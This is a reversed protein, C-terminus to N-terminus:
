VAVVAQDRLKFKQIKGTSTRPIETFVVSTPCKFRALHQRCWTIIEDQSASMGPRLEVYAVPTEGWKDSPHAIVATVLVAPHSYLINEVEISSINEGGSIIIDKSRDKLQIYGDPHCVGLDGSHFWGGEFAEATAETNKLYGKMVINGRLMVEGMTVGDSPVPQMTEPDLVALQDQPLYRVGQRAKKAAKEAPPLADWEEHWQNVVCPGYTETLGYIHNVNFGAESAAAIVAEPPPAGAVSFHVPAHLERKEAESANVLTAMVIPAGCMHTVGLDAIADYMPKARVWRLCVHVGAQLTVTWPFCWGNCHFMPLTWLYVPHRPIEAHITNAYCMLAAGRHHYVAGKPNGTTGSTYNLAIADWEDAPRLWDFDEHGETLFAEYEMEGLVPGKPFPADAPYDPDDYYIIQPKVKAQELAEKAVQTFERDVILFKTEAHDLQFAVIAADLRTNIAHLVAGTMPVGYHAEIMPPTNSLIVSVTDNKGIGRASLASALRNSRAWLGAYDLKFNGHIVATKAPYVQAARELFPIPSLAQYNASNRDLGTEYANKM